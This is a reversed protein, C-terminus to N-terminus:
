RRVSTALLAVLLLVGLRALDLPGDYRLVGERNVVFGTVLLWAVVAGSLATPTSVGISCAGVLLLVVGLTVASPVSLVRCADILALGGWMVIGVRVAPVWTPRGVASKPTSV